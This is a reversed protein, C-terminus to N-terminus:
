RCRQIVTARALFRKGADSYPRRPGWGGVRMVKFPASIPPAFTSTVNSGLAFGTHFNLGSEAVTFADPFMTNVAFPFEGHFNVPQLTLLPPDIKPVGDILVLPFCIVIDRCTGAAFARLS